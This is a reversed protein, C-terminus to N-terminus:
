CENGATGNDKSRGRRVSEGEQSHGWMEMWVGAWSELRRLADRSPLQCRWAMESYRRGVGSQTGRASNKTLSM